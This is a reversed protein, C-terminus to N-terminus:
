PEDRRARLSRLLEEYRYPIEHKLHIEKLRAHYKEYLPGMRDKYAPDCFYIRCGLM